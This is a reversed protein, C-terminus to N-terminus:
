EHLVSQIAVAIDSRQQSNYGWKTFFEHWTAQKTDTCIDNENGNTVTAVSLIAHCEDLIAKYSLQDPGNKCQHLVDKLLRIARNATFDSQQSLEETTQQTKMATPMVVNKCMLSILKNSDGFPDVQELLVTLLSNPTTGNEGNAGDSTMVTLFTVMFGRIGDPHSLQARLRRMLVDTNRGADEAMLGVMFEAHGVQKMFPDTRLQEVSPIADFAMNESPNKMSSLVNSNEGTMSQSDSNMSRKSSTRAGQSVYRRSQGYLLSEPITRRIPVVNRPLIYSTAIKHFIFASKVITVLAMLSKMEEDLFTEHNSRAELEILVKRTRIPDSSTV